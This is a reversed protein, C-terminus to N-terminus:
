LVSRKSFSSRRRFCRNELTIAHFNTKKWSCSTEYGLRALAASVTSGAPGGGIVVADLM